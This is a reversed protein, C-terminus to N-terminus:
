SETPGYEQGDTKRAACSSLGCLTCVEAWSSPHQWAAASAGPEMLTKCHRKWPSLLLAFQFGPSFSYIQSWYTVGIEDKKLFDKQFFDGLEGVVNVSALQCRWQASVKNVTVLTPNGENLYNTKSFFLVELLTNEPSSECFGYTRSSTM